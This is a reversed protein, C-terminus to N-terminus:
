KLIMWNWRFIKLLVQKKKGTKTMIIDAETKAKNGFLYDQVSIQNDKPMRTFKIQKEKDKKTTVFTNLNKSNLEFLKM